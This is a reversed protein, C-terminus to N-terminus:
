RTRGYYDRGALVPARRRFKACEHTTVLHKLGEVDRSVIETRCEVCHWHIPKDSIGASITYIM